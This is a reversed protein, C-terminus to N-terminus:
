GGRKEGTDNLDIQGILSHERGLVPCVDYVDLIGDSDSDDCQDGFESGGSDAQDPNDCMAIASTFPYNNWDLQDAATYPSPPTKTSDCRWLPCNDTKTISQISDYINTPAVNNISCPWLPDDPALSIPLLIPSILYHTTVEQGAGVDCYGDDDPDDDPDSPCKDCDIQGSNYHIPDADLTDSCGDDDMDNDAECENGYGDGDLDYNELLYEMSDDPCKDHSSTVHDRDADKVKCLQIPSAQNSWDTGDWSWQLNFVGLTEGGTSVSDDCTIDGCGWNFITIGSCDTPSHYYVPNFYGKADYDNNGPHPGSKGTFYFPTRPTIEPLTGGTYEEYLGDSNIPYQDYDQWCLQQGPTAQYVWDSTSDSWAIVQTNLYIKHNCIPTSVHNYLKLSMDATSDVCIAFINEGLFTNCKSGYNESAFTRWNQWTTFAGAFEYSIGTATAEAACKDIGEQQKAAPGAAIDGASFHIIKVQSEADIASCGFLGLVLQSIMSTVIVMFAVLFILKAKFRTRSM